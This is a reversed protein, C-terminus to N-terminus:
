TESDTSTTDSIKKFEWYLEWIKEATKTADRNRARRKTEEFSGKINEDIPKKEPNYLKLEEEIACWESRLAYPFDNKNLPKLINYTFILRNRVDKPHTALCKIANFLKEATYQYQNM